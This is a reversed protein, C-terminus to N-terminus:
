EICTQGFPKKEKNKAINNRAGLNAAGFQTKM